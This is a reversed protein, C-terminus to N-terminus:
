TKSRYRQFDGAGMLRPRAAAPLVQADAHISRNVSAARALALWARARCRVKRLSHKFPFPGRLAYLQQCAFALRVAWSALALVNAAGRANSAQAGAVLRAAAHGCAFAVARSSTGHTMRLHYDGSKAASRRIRQFALWLAAPAVAVGVAVMESRTGHVM